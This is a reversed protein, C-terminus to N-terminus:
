ERREEIKRALSGGSNVPDVRERWLKLLGNLVMLRKDPHVVIHDQGRHAPRVFFDPFEVLIAAFGLVPNVTMRGGLGDEHSETARFNDVNFGITLGANVKKEKRGLM